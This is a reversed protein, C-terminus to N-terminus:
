NDTSDYQEKHSKRKYALYDRMFDMTLTQTNEDYKPNFVTLITASETGYTRCDPKKVVHIHRLLMPLSWNYEGWIYDFAERLLDEEMESFKKAIAHLDKDCSLSLSSEM